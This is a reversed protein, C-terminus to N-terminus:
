QALKLTKGLPFHEIYETFETHRHSITCGPGGINGNQVPFEQKENFFFTRVLHTKCSYNQMNEKTVM